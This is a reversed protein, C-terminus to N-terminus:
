EPIDMVSVSDSVGTERMRDRLLEAATRGDDSVSLNWYDATFTGTRDIAMRLSESFAETLRPYRRHNSTSKYSKRMVLVSFRRGDDDTFHFTEGELLLRRNLRGYANFERPSLTRMVAAIRHSLYSKIRHSIICLIVSIAYLPILDNERCDRNM